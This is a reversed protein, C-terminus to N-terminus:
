CRIAFQRDRIAKRQDRIWDQMSGPQPQRALADLGAIRKDLETCEFKNPPEITAIQQQAQLTRVQEAAKRKATLEELNEKPPSVIGASDHIAVARSNAGNPCGQDSYITKGNSVCKSIGTATASNQTVPQNVTDASGIDADSSRSASSNRIETAAGEGKRAQEMNRKQPNTRFSQEAVWLMAAVVGIALVFSLLTEKRM